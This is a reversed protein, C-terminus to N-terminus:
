RRLAHRASGGGRKKKPLSRARQSRPDRDAPFFRRAHELIAFALDLKPMLELEVVNGLRDLLMAQNTETGFGAGATKPNNVVILDLKKKRLKDRAHKLENTTELAFGIHVTQSKKAALSQLIDLTPELKLTLTAASKKIKEPAITQPRYDAVAAAMVLVDCGPYRLQVAKGMEAASVVPVVELHPPPPLTSPGTVLTVNAGLAHAAEAVAFGMRGTAPNTLMRVPDLYEDTRGATVLVKKGLLPKERQLAIRLEAVINPLDALRGWGEGESKTAMAGFAPEVIAYGNERLLALNRQVLPDEWMASNMAPCLVVPVRAARVTASIPDDAFGHALSALTHATTPCVVITEAWRSLDIHEIEARGGPPFLTTVVPNASLTAFTLPAVFETAANTMAVRVEAGQRKLERVLECSKYAAIGGTIGVVIRKGALSM